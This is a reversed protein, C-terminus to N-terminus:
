SEAWSRPVFFSYKMVTQSDTGIMYVLGLGSAELFAEPVMKDIRKIGYGILLKDIRRRRHSPDCVMLDLATSSLRTLLPSLPHQLPVLKRTLVGLFRVLFRM